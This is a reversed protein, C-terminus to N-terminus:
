PSWFCFCRSKSFGRLFRPELFRFDATRLMESQLRCLSLSSTGNDEGGGLAIAGSKEILCIPGVSQADLEGVGFNKRSGRYLNSQQGDAIICSFSDLTRESASCCM